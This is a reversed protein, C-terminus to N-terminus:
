KSIKPKFDEGWHADLDAYDIKVLRSDLYGYNRVSDDGGFHKKHESCDVDSLLEWENNTLTKARKMVLFWGGWSTLLVPCLLHSTGKEFAGSNWRWTQGENINGVLGRLFNCWGKHICPVKVVFNKFCFVTRTVGKNNIHM